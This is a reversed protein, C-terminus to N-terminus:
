PFRHQCSVFCDRNRQRNVSRSKERAKLFKEDFRGRLEDIAEEFFSFGKNRMQASFCKSKETGIIASCYYQDNWGRGTGADANDHM